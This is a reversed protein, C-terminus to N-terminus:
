LFTSIARALVRMLHSPRRSPAMLHKITTQNTFKELMLKEKFLAEQLSKNNTAIIVQAEMDRRSSRLSYNSSGLATWGCQEGVSMWIGKAHFTWGERSYEKYAFDKRKAREMFKLLRLARSSYATPINRAVGKATFFGNAEPSAAILTLPFKALTLGYEYEKELNLYPSCVTLATPGLLRVSDMYAFLNKLVGGEQSVGLRRMQFYPMVYTDSLSDDCKESLKRSELIFENVHRSIQSISSMSLTVKDVGTADLQHAFSSILRIFSSFFDALAPADRFVFYRDQRNRFYDGSLNAGSIVVDNDFIYIKMHMLGVVERIRNPLCRSLLATGGPIQFLSVKSRIPFDAVLPHLLSASSVNNSSKRTGRLYDILFMVSVESSDNSCCQLSQEQVLENENEGVYLSSLIIRKKSSQIGDKISQYFEEPTSLPKIQDASCPFIPGPLSRLHSTFDFSM